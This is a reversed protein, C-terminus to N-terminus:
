QRSSKAPKADSSKTQINLVKAKTHNQHDKNAIVAAFQGVAQKDIGSLSINKEVKVEMGAPVEMEIPHSYGLNLTLKKAPLQPKTVSVTSKWFKTFGTTVGVVM